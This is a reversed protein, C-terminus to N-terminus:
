KDTRRGDIDMVNDVSLHWLLMVPFVSRLYRSTELLSDIEKNVMVARQGSHWKARFRVVRFPQQYVDFSDATLVLARRQSPGFLTAKTGGLCFYIFESAERILPVGPGVGSRLDHDHGPVIVLGGFVEISVLRYLEEVAALRSSRDFWVLISPEVQILVGVGRRTVESPSLTVPVTVGTHRRRAATMTQSETGPMNASAEDPPLLTPKFCSLTSSRSPVFITRSTCDFRCCPLYAEKINMQSDASPPLWPSGFPAPDVPRRWRSSCAPVLLM